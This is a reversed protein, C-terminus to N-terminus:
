PCPVWLPRQLLKIKTRATMRPRIHCQPCFSFLGLCLAYIRACCLGLPLLAILVPTKRLSSSCPGLSPSLTCSCATSRPQAWLPLGPLSHSRESFLSFFTDCLFTRGLSCARIRHGRIGGRLGWWGEWEGFGGARCQCTCIVRWSRGQGGGHMPTPTGEKSRRTPPPNSLM